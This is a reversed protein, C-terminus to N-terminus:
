KKPAGKVPKKNRFAESRVVAAVLASFKKYKGVHASIDDVYCQDSTELGRGIAFTLMKDGLCSLFESRKSILIDRLESPGEFKKGDPLVGSADIKEGDEETRWKGTADFNELSFGIPDMRRHCSACTPDERHQEMRQRLTKGTLADRERLDPVNPPPPPPPQNLLQDLVWKGRKVPSTRTPNSTLTLISGQTLLGSRPTGVLSVQRFEKGSVGSIGYHKALEENVFTYKAGLFDMVDRDDRIVHDVFMRTETTMADRLSESFGPFLKPDPQITALKRLNLWQGAFNDVLAESRPDQLMRKAEVALVNPDQLKGKAALSLLRADPMSSWVFYSLRSALEYDDLRGDAHENEVRFIFHPSSLVAQVALQVGREFSQGDKQVLDVIQTLRDLEASKVPRRFARTAFRSLVQRALQKKDAGKPDSFIVRRHTEPMAGYPFAPSEIELWYVYLNRDEPPPGPQYYDNIFEVGVQQQGAKADFEVEFVQPKDQPVPVEVVQLRNEGLLVAMKVKEPGAQQGSARIRVKYRGDAPFSYSLYAPGGSFFIQGVDSPAGGNSQKLETADFRQRKPLPLSITRKAVTEAAALYKEMLLPSITLVDGINDFGYGVDDSPFNQGLKLDLGTLDRVTNDYEARNLRRMTVRGPDRVGCDGALTTQIWAVMRTRQAKTPGPFGEPPMHGSSVNAVVREWIEAAATVSAATKFKELSLGARPTDGSHCPL